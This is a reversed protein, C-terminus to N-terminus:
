HKSMTHLNWTNIAESYDVGTKPSTRYGALLYANLTNGDYVYGDLFIVPCGTPQRSFSCINLSALADPNTQQYQDFPNEIAKFNYTPAEVGQTGRVKSMVRGYVNGPETIETTPGAIMQHWALEGAKPTYVWAKPTDELVKKSISVIANLTDTYIKARELRYAESLKTNVLSEDMSAGLGNLATVLARQAKLPESWDHGLVNKFGMDQQKESLALLENLIVRAYEGDTLLQTPDGQQASAGIISEYKKKFPAVYEDVSDFSEDEAVLLHWDSAKDNKSTIRTTSIAQVDSFVMLLELADKIAATEEIEGDENLMPKDLMSLSLIRKEQLKVDDTIRLGDPKAMLVRRMNLMMRRAAEAQKILTELNLGTLSLKPDTGTTEQPKAVVGYKALVQAYRKNKPTVALDISLDPNVKKLTKEFLSEIAEKIIEPQALHQQETKGLILANQRLASPRPWASQNYAADLHPQLFTAPVLDGHKKLATKVHALSDGRPADVIKKNSDLHPNVMRLITEAESRDCLFGDFVVPNELPQGTISSYFIRSPM